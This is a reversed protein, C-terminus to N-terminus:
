AVFSSPSSSKRNRPRVSKGQGCEVLSESDPNRLQEISYVQRWDTRKLRSLYGPLGVLDLFNRWVGRDYPSVNKESNKCKGVPGQLSLGGAFEVYRDINIRENTTTNLWVMQYLQSWFLLFTWLTYFIANAMCFVVWPNCVLRTLLNSGLAKNSDDKMNTTPETCTPEEMLYFVSGLIFLTCSISTSFLYLMFYWHNNMGVCNYIWPCHHDFRAVCRDCTSCHKSRLPKQILCTTCFRELPNIMPIPGNRDDRTVADLKVIAEDVLKVIDAQRDSKEASKVYGPDKNICVAFTSWLGTISVTFLFHLMWHSPTHSAVYLFYTLTLLLTTSTALSFLLLVQFRYDSFKALLRRCISATLLLMICKVLYGVWAAPRITPTFWQATAIFDWSLICVFCLLFVPPIIMTIRCRWKRSHYLDSCRLRSLRTSSTSNSRAQIAAMTCLRDTLWPVIRVEYATKGESNVANWDAGAKDLAVIAPVNTYNVAYHTAANGRSDTIGLSAGWTILLRFVDASRTHMCAVMLPTLGSADRSDVDIGRALLYAIVPVCGIQVAVHICALGTNDRIDADAGHEMLIHVMTLHSQRIAWHLPTAMLHGGVRDVCAGKSLLYRVIAIRNNIAAWHLLSVGEDDLQNVDYGVENLKGPIAPGPEILEVVRSFIGYQVAKVINWDSYDKVPESSYSKDVPYPPTTEGESAM